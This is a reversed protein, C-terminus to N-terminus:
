GGEKLIESSVLADKKGVKLLWGVISIGPGPKRVLRSTLIVFVNGMSHVNQFIDVMWWQSTFSGTFM